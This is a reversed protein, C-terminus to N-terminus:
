KTEDNGEQDLEGDEIAAAYADLLAQLDGMDDAMGADIAAAGTHTQADPWQSNVQELALGRGRAVTERFLLNCRAVQAQISRSQADSFGDVPAGSGKIDSSRFTHPDVGINRILRGMDYCTAICGISGVGGGRDVMVIQDCQSALAYAASYADEVAAITLFGYQRLSYIADCVPLMGSAMGGPSDIAFILNGCQQEKADAIGALISAYTTAGGLLLEDLALDKVLVGKIPIIGCRGNVVQLKSANAQATLQAVVPHEARPRVVTEAAARLSAMHPEHIAWVQGHIMRTYPTFTHVTESM